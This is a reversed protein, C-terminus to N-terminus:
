SGIVKWHRAKLARRDDTVGLVTVIGFENQLVSPRVSGTGAYEGKIVIDGSKLTFVSGPDSGEAAYEEPSVYEKNSFDADVPIRITVRDSAKLGTADVISATECYWSVGRIITPYYVDCGLEEDIKSNFVTITENCLKM